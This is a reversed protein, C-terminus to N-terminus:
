VSNFYLLVGLAESYGRLLPLLLAQFHLRTFEKRESTPSSLLYVDRQLSRARRNIRKTGSLSVENIILFMEKTDEASETRGETERRVSERANARPSRTPDANILRRPPILQIEPTFTLLRPENAVRRLPLCQKKCALGDYRGRSRSENERIENFTRWLRM